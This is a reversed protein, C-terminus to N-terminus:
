FDVVGENVLNIGVRATFISTDPFQHRSASIESAFSKIEVSFSTLNREFYAEGHFFVYIGNISRDEVSDPRPRFVMDPNRLIEEIETRPRCHVISKGAVAFASDDITRPATEVMQGPVM